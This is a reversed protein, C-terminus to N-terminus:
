ASLKAASKKLGDLISTGVHSPFDKPLEKTVAEVAAPTREVLDQAIKSWYAGIGCRRATEQWHRPQIASWRYHRSEGEVAMAMKVKHSALTGHKRGLVPFASIVDYRPTLRYQGQAELFLSFNKAHGDIACLMWFLVQTRFFDLRDDEARYSGLLIEMIRRIGPGGDSEYKADRATGTAQCLDEQPLRLIWSGDSAPRRDFREVVLCKQDGFQEMSCAAMPVGYASLIRSCLWENEVSTSLDIGQHAEGIPLKFIHTTPTSGLPLMWKRGSRLLATKEQAGALSIRLEDLEGEQGPVRPNRVGKLVREIAAANLPEGQINRVNQPTEDEPLLQFAGVCDRGAEALLDFTQASRAGLRQRMRERIARSDPLLNDFFTEVVAGKYVAGLPGVPMSLSLPRPDSSNLWDNAYVLQQPGNSPLMWTAAREGNMWIALARTRSHRAM